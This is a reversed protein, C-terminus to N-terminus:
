GQAKMNMIKTKIKLEVRLM